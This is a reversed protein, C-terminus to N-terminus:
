WYYDQMLVLKLVISAIFLYGREGGQQNAFWCPKLGIGKLNM